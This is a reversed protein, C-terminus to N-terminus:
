WNFFTRVADAGMHELQQAGFLGVNAKIGGTGIVILALGTM